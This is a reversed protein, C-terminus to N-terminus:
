IIRSDDTRQRTISLIIGAGIATGILSSGGYSLFPLTMGKTPILKLASGINVLMQLTFQSVLGSLAIILFLSHERRTIFICRAFIFAYISLVFLCFFFGFEEAAVPFIFDAHADPIARKFIGEGPGQGFVGGNKFAELSKTIQYQDGVQPNLFRDIRSAVHPFFFYAGVVGTGGLVGLIMIWLLPLGALFIQIFWACSIIFVMGFDPQLLILGVIMLYLIFSLARGSIPYGKKQSLLWASVVIFCPKVIETVQLSFGGLSIWRRAGKIEQGMFPTLILFIICIGLLGWCGYRLLRPAAFSCILLILLAPITLISHRIAFYFTPINLREATGPSAAFSLLIGLAFLTLFSFLLPKDVTWWWRGLLSRDTRSFSEIM